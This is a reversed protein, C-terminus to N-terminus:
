GRMEIRCFPLGAAGFPEPPHVTFGVWEAWRLAAGYRADIANHLCGYRELLMPVVVRSSKAFLIPHRNVVESTLMWAVCAVPEGLFDARLVRVGFIAAPEGDILFTACGESADISDQLAQLPEQADSAAVEDRDAKRMTRAVALVHSPEVPVITASGM